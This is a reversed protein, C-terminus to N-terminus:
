ESRLPRRLLDEIMAAIPVGGHLIAAVAESIPMEIAFRRALRVVAAATAVGEVIMRHGSTATGPDKGRGLMLGFLHNRSKLATASLVLDGLGSLGQFTEARAGMAQGLRTMEALGRTILAARANEGLGRGRIIGTAIAIVNKVAGGVQVGIPDSSLYPRFRTSGLATMLARGLAPDPGAIAIATPLGRAVEAAFTPGSLVAFPSGPLVERGVESMLALSDLEIGKACHVVPLGAPLFPHHFELVTRLIQAPVALLAADADGTAIAFETTAAIAPDLSIGPLFLPNEHHENIAAVVERSRAWLVPRCGARHAAAALATGWAGAGIIALRRV